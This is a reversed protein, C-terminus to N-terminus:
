SVNTKRERFTWGRVSFSESFEDDILLIVAHKYKQALLFGLDFMIMWRDEHKPSIGLPIFTHMVESFRAQSGFMTLYWKNHKNLEITLKLGIIQYDYVTYGVLGSVDCFGCNEDRRDRIWFIPGYFSVSLCTPGLAYQHPL